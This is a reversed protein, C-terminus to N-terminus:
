MQYAVAAETLGVATKCVMVVMHEMARDLFTILNLEFPRRIVAIV